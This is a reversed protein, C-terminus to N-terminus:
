DPLRIAGDDDIPFGPNWAIEWIFGDPDAICGSYGGWDADAAPRSLTAGAAVAEAIAADVEERSRVNHALAVGAFGSGAPDVGADEALAARPYLALAMGGMRFFAVGPAARVSRRWGLREYFARARDLDAVGLTILSLRQEVTV